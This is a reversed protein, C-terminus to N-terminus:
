KKKTNFEFERDGMRIIDGDSLKIGKGAHVYTSRGQECLDEVYWDGDAFFLVAQKEDDISQDTPMTNSRALMVGSGTDEFNRIFANREGEYTIPRLSCIPIVKGQTDEISPVVENNYNDEYLLEGCELCYEEKGPVKAGCHPCTIMNEKKEEAVVVNCNPCHHMSTIIPYGCSFCIKIKTMNYSKTIMQNLTELLIGRYRIM